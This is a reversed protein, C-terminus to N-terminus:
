ETCKVKWPLKIIYTAVQVSDQVQLLCVQQKQTTPRLFDRLDSSIGRSLKSLPTTKREPTHTHTHSLGQKKCQTFWGLALLAMNFSMAAERLEMIQTLLVENANLDLPM